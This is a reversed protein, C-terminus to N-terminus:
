DYMLKIKEHYLNYLSDAPFLKMSVQVDKGNWKGKLELRDKSPSNYHFIKWTEKNPNDYLTLTKKNSDIDFQYWNQQDNMGYIIAVNGYYVYSFTIRKWRLTDTTLPPLTDGAIFRTVDYVKEKQADNHVDEFNKIDGSINLVIFFLPVFVLTATLLFQKWKAQFVFRKSFVQASAKRFLFVSLNKLDAALLFLTYILLQITFSIAPVNYFLNLAVVNVLITFLFLLGLFATRRSLLLLGAIVECTGSFIEYGPSAGVFNWLVEMRTQEGVQKTMQIIAPFPMQSPILKEIGYSTIVIALIYRLYVSFWYFLKNYNNTKKDIFSWCITAIIVVLFLTILFVLGFHTPGPFSAHIAPNYGTHYIHKDLWYFSGSLPKFLKTLDFRNLDSTASVFYIILDWAWFTTLGLFLFCFRFSIKKWAKWSAEDNEM